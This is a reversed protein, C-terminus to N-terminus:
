QCDQKQMADEIKERMHDGEVAFDLAAKLAVCSGGKEVAQSARNSCVNTLAKILDLNSLSYEAGMKWVKCALRFDNRDAALKGKQYCSASMDDIVHRRVYSSRKELERKREDHGFKKDGLVLKADIELAKHFARDASELKDSQVDGTGSNFYNIAQTIQGQMERAADHLAAKAMTERIKQLPLVADNFKGDYYLGMARAMEPETYRAQFEEKVAKAPDPPAAPPRFVSIEPCHWPPEDPKVKARAKLFDIYLTDQPRWDTKKNLPGDLKIKMLAPAYLDKPDMTQCALRIYLECRKYANEWKASGAYNKCEEGAEKKVEVLPGRAAELARNHYSACETKIKAFHDLADEPRGTSLSERGANLNEECKREVEIKRLLANADPHIPELDLVKQCAEEARTWNPKALTDTASYTRCETLFADVQEEPTLDAAVAAPPKRTSIPADALVPAPNSTLAKVIVLVLLGGAISGAVILKKKSGPDMASAEDVASSIPPQERLRRPSRSAPSEAPSATRRVPPRAGSASTGGTEFMMEVVGFQVIDGANLITKEDIPTGNVSTGNASGLDKVSVQRGEVVLEAHRRSVSDDDIQLDVGAVRGVVVTGALPTTKGEVPGTLGKLQPGAARGPPPRKLGKRTDSPKLTSVVKTSRSPTAKLPKGAASTPADSAKGRSGRRHTKTGLKLVVEYDGIVVQSKSNLVIPGEIRKGDVWTGNASGTDEVLLADDELFFRAHKRSVGGESLILDSGEARGITLQEAVEQEQQSGDPNRIVLTPV